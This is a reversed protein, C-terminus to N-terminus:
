EYSNELFTRFYSCEKIVEQYYETSAYNKKLITYFRYAHEDPEEIYYESESEDAGENYWDGDGENLVIECKSGLFCCKAAFEIDSTNNMALNYYYAAPRTSAYGQSYESRSENTLATWSNGYYTINYFANGLLYYYQAANSPDDIALQKLELMRELMSYTTYSIEKAQEYDCDHCDLLRSTFPDAPLHYFVSTGAKKYYAMAEELKFEALLQTGRKEYLENLNLPFKRFLYNEFNSKNEKQFFSIYEDLSREGWWDGFYHSNPGAKTCLDAMLGNQQKTYMFAIKTLLFSQADGTKVNEAKAIWNLMEFSQEELDTSMSDARLLHNIFKYYRIHDLPALDNKPWGAVAASLYQDAAVDNNFIMQIYGAFFQWVHKKNLRDDKLKASFYDSINQQEKKDIHHNYYYNDANLFQVEVKRVYRGLVALIYESAPNIAHIQEILELENEDWGSLYDLFYIPIQEDPSKAMQLLSDLNTDYNLKFSRAAVLRRSICRDFLQTFIYASENNKNLGKLAGAKQSLAWDKIISNVQLPEVLNDYLAVSKEFDLAYHAMRVLQYAYRLKLYDSSCENFLREGKSILAEMKNYDRNPEDWYGWGVSVQPECRKAYKLYDVFETRKKKYIFKAAKNNVFRAPLIKKNKDDISQALSDLEEITSSYILQDIDDIPAKKKFYEHWEELNAVKPELESELNYDFYHDDSLLFPQLFPENIVSPEVLSMYDDIYYDGGGCGTSLMVPYISLAVSGLVILLIKSIRKIM